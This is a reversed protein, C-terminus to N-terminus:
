DETLRLRRGPTQPRDDFDLCLSSGTAKPETNEEWTLVAAHTMGEAGAARKVAVSRQVRRVEGAQNDLPTSVPRIAAPEAPQPEPRARDRAAEVVLGPLDMAATRSAPKYAKVVKRAHRQKAMAERIDADGPAYEALQLHEATTIYQYMMTYVDVRSVDDPDVALRVRSGMHERLRGDYQGYDIYRFRVGNKGVKASAWVRCLLDLVDERIARRSTRLAMVELPSRGDMERGTHPAHNYANIYAEVAETFEELGLAEALAKESRLYDALDEPRTVPSNGCYTPMSKGFQGEFTQFWREIAKAKANYPIAFSVSVGMMAYLGAVAEEDEIKMKKTIRRRLKTTGTFTESDYDKGNDIKVGEPPGYQKVAARFAQLITSSNPQTTVVWGVITRSRMDEWATLWPRVWRGGERVWCDCQHHDGIWVAGPEIKSLDTVNYPACKAEYAMPGERHLVQMPYPIREHILQQMRRLSPVQWDLGARKAERIVRGRCDAVSPRRLDLYHSEFQEWAEKTIQEKGVGGRTDILGALGLKRNAAIWRQLTRLPIQRMRCFDEMAQVRYFGQRVAQGCFAECEQITTLRRMAEELKPRPVAALDVEIGASRATEMAALHPHATLPIAWGRGDKVAGPLKGAAILQRVRRETVRLRAAATKIDVTRNEM